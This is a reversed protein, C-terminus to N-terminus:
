VRYSATIVTPSSRSTSATRAWATTLGTGSLTDTIPYTAFSSWRQEGDSVIPSGAAEHNQISDKVAEDQLAELEAQEIKGEDYQAYAAQLKAPRPLSGVPETPLGTDTRPDSAM